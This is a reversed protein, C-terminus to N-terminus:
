KAFLAFFGGVFLLEALLWLMLFIATWILHGESNELRDAIAVHSWHESIIERRGAPDSNAWKENFADREKTWEAYQDGGSFPATGICDTRYEDLKNFPIANCIESGLAILQLRRSAKFGAGVFYFLMINVLILLSLM